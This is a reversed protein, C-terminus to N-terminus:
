TIDVEALLQGDVWLAISGGDVPADLGYLFILDGETVVGDGDQDDLVLVPPGMAQSGAVAGLTFRLDAWPPRPEGGVVAVWLAADTLNGDTGNAEAGSLLLTMHFPDAGEEVQPDDLFWTAVALATLVGAVVAILFLPRGAM